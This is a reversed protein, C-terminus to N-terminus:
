NVLQGGFKVCIVNGRDGLIAISEDLAHLIFPVLLELEIPRCKVCRRAVPRLARSLAAAVASAGAQWVALVAAVSDQL